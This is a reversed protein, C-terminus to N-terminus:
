RTSDGQKEQEEKEKQENLKELAVRIRQICIQSGILKMAQFLPLSVEKGSIAIRIPYVVYKLKLDFKHTLQNRVYSEFDPNHKELFDLVDQLIGRTRHGTKSSLLSVQYVPPQENIIEELWQKVEKLTFIRPELLPKAERLLNRNDM